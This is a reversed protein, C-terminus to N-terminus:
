GRGVIPSRDGGAAPEAAGLRLAARATLAYVVASLLFKTGAVMVGRGVLTRREDPTAARMQFGDLLFLGLSIVILFAAIGCVWGLLKVLGRREALEAGFIMLVLGTLPTVTFGSAMGTVGYRWELTGPAFPYANSMLDFLAVFLMLFGACTLATGLQASRNVPETM